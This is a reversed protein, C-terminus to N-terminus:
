KQLANPSAASAGCILLLVLNETWVEVVADQYCTPRWHHFISRVTSDHIESSRRREAEIRKRAREQQDEKWLWVVEVEKHSTRLARYLEERLIFIVNELRTLVDTRRKVYWFMDPAVYSCHLITESVCVWVPFPSALISFAAPNPHVDSLFDVMFPFATNDFWMYLKFCPSFFFFAAHMPSLTGVSVFMNCQYHPCIYRHCWRCGSEKKLSDYNEDGTPASLRCGPNCWLFM